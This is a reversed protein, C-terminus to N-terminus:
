RRKGKVPVLRYIGAHSVPEVCVDAGLAAVEGRNNIAEAVHFVTCAKLPDEDGVLDHLVMPVGDHWLIALSPSRRDGVSGVIDGRDNIGNANATLGQLGPLLTMGGNSWLIAGGTDPEVLFNGVVDGARNIDIAFGFSAEPPVPLETMTGERWLFPRSGQDTEGFGVADGARNIALGVCSVSSGPLDGISMLNGHEWLICETGQASESYGVVVGFTNIDEASSINSGGPLDGIAQFRGRTWVFGATRQPDSAVLVGAVQGKDNVANGSLPITPPEATLIFARQKTWLYPVNFPGNPIVSGQGTITGHRNIEVPFGAIGELKEIRYQPPEHRNDAEAISAIVLLLAACVLQNRM